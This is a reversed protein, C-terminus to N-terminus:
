LAVPNFNEKDDVTYLQHLSVNLWLGHIDLVGQAVAKQIFEYSMLNRISLVVGKQEMTTLCKHGDEMAQCMTRYAPSLQQIWPLIFKGKPVENQECLHYGAEVGGCNSHGLIIIRKVKLYLVAYEIASLTGYLGTSNENDSFEPVFNAINRHVFYTGVEAQFLDEVLVRSDCCSIIMTEPNQKKALKSYKQQIEKTLNFHWTRYKKQLQEPLPCLFKLSM